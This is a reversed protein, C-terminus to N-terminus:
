ISGTWPPPAHVGRRHFQAEAEGAFARQAVPGLAESMRHGVFSRGDPGVELPRAANMYPEADQRLADDTIEPASPTDVSWDPTPPATAASAPKRSKKGKKGM